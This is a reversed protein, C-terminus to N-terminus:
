IQICTHYTEKLLQYDFKKRSFDIQAGIIDAEKEFYDALELSACMGETTEPVIDGALKSSVEHIGLRHLRTFYCHWRLCDYLYVFETYEGNKREEIDGEAREIHEKVYGLEGTCAYFYVENTAWEGSHSLFVERYEGLLKHFYVSRGQHICYDLLMPILNRDDALPCTEYCWQHVAPIARSRFQDLMQELGEYDECLLYYEFIPLKAHLYCSTIKCQELKRKSQEAMEKDHNLCALRLMSDYYTNEGGYKLATKRYKEMFYDMKKDTIEPFLVYAAYIMQYSWSVYVALNEEPYRSIALDLYQESDHYLIEAYKIIKKYKAARQLLYLMEQFAKFYCYWENERKALALIKDLLRELREENNDYNEEGHGYSLKQVKRVDELLEESQIYSGRINHFMRGM